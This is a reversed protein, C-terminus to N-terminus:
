GGHNGSARLIGAMYEGIAWFIALHSAGFLIGRLVPSGFFLGTDITALPLGAAFIFALGKYVMLALAVLSAVIYANFRINMNKLRKEDLNHFTLLTLLALTIPIVAGLLFTHGHVLSMNHGYLLQQDPSLAKFFPRSVERYVLGMVLALISMIAAYRIQASFLKQVLPPFRDM